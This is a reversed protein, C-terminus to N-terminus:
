YNSRLGHRHTTKSLWLDIAGLPVSSSPPANAHLTSDPSNISFVIAHGLRVWHLRSSIVLGVAEATAAAAAPL